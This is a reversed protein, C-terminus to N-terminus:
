AARKYKSVGDPRLYQDVGGPRYYEFTSSEGQKTYIELRDPSDGKVPIAATIDFYEGGQVIRYETSVGAVDTSYRITFVTETESHIAAAAERERGRLNKREGWVTVLNTWTESVSGMGDVVSTRTQITLKKRAKSFLM